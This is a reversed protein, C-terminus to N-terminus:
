YRIPQMHLGACGRLTGNRSDIRSGQSPTLLAMLSGPVQSWAVGHGCCAAEPSAAIPMALAVPSQARLSAARRESAVGVSCACCVEVRPHLAMKLMGSTRSQAAPRPGAGLRLVSHSPPCVDVITARTGPGSANVAGVRNSVTAM